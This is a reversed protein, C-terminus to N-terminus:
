DFIRLNRFMISMCSHVPCPDFSAGGARFFFKLWEVKPAKTAFRSTALDVDPACNLTFQFLIKTQAATLYEVTYNKICKMIIDPSRFRATKTLRQCMFILTSTLSSPKVRIWNPNWLKLGYRNVFEPLAMDTRAVLKAGLPALDQMLARSVILSNDQFKKANVRAGESDAILRGDGGVGASTNSVGGSKDGHIVVGDNSFTM